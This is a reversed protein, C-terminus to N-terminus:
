DEENLQRQEKILFWHSYIPRHGPHRKLETPWNVQEKVFGGQSSIQLKLIDQLWTTDTTQEEDEINYQVNQTKQREEYVKFANSLLRVSVQRPKSYSQISDVYWTSLKFRSLTSEVEQFIM